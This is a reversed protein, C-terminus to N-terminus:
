HVGDPTEVVKQGHRRDAHQRREEAAPRDPDNWQREHERHHHARRERDSLDLQGKHFQRYGHGDDDESQRNRQLNRKRRNRGHPENAEESQEVAIGM